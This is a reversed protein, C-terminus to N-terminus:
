DPKIYIMNLGLRDLGAKAWFEEVATGTESMRMLLPLARHDGIDALARLALIRANPTSAPDKEIKEMLASVSGSGITALGKSALSATLDDVDELAEILNPVAKETPHDLLALATAARVEAASDKLLELWDEPDAHKSSALVRIAWWRSEQDQSRTLNLLAPVAKAGMSNIQPIVKEAREDVGCILESILHDMPDVQDPTRDETM